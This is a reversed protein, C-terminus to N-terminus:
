LEGGNLWDCFREAVPHTVIFDGQVGGSQVFGGHCAAIDIVSGNSLTVSVERHMVDDFGRLEIKTITPFM